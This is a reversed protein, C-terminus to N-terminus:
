LPSRSLICLHAVSSRVAAKKISSTGDPGTGNFWEIFRAMEPPVISPPPAEFHVTEHGIPGSIVQMPETRTRWTGPQIHRHRAMIMRHWEFLTEQSLPIAFSQLVDTMLTAISIARKDCTEAKKEIGLNRRISLLVDRRSLLEGEIASTKLAETAMLEIAAEIQADPSLGKVLGAVQGTKEAFTLFIEELASLDYRFPPQDIQQWNHPM